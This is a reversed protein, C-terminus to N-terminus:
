DKNSTRNPKNLEAAVFAEAQQKADTLANVVAANLGLGTSLFKGVFRVLPNESIIVVGIMNPDIQMRWRALSLNAVKIQAHTIDYIIAYIRSSPQQNIFAIRENTSIVFSDNTIAGLEVVYVVHEGIFEMQKIM